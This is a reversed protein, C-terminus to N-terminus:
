SAIAAVLYAECFTFLFLLGYNYPVIRTVKICCLMVCSLVFVIICAAILLGWNTQMWLAASDSLMPILTILATLLLQVALISYVKKVFNM